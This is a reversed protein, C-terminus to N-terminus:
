VVSCRLNNIYPTSNKVILQGSITLKQDPKIVVNCSKVSPQMHMRMNSVDTIVIKQINGIDTPIVPFVKGHNGARISLCGISYLCLFYKNEKVPNSIKINLQAHESAFATNM